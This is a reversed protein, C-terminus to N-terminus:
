IVTLARAAVADVSRQVDWTKLVLPANPRGLLRGVARRMAGIEPPPDLLGREQLERDAAAIQSPELLVAFELLSSEDSTERTRVDTLM